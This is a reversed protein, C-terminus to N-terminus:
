GLLKGIHEAARRLGQEQGESQLRPGIIELDFYGTFGTAAIAPVLREFPIAGDGPVARCPLGRDGYVYDSVQILALLPGADAIAEEIDSDFWCAFTDIIVSVSAKRAVATVDALRHVISADAYLHSTPEIGLCVDAQEALLACPAVAEAFADAAQTWTLGGRGGTTMIVTQAGITAAVELTHALRERASEVNAPTAFGFARHTLTAVELGADRIRRATQEAGLQEVQEIGPSIARAGIGAITDIQASLDAPALSLTNISIAPHM